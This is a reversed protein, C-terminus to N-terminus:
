LLEELDTNNLHAPNEDDIIQDSIEIKKSQLKLIKEEITGISIFRTVLVKNKRGIRHARAIAQKEVFPNWWPELIFIYDAMTLNLGTGGAKISLMFVKIDEENQFTEVAHQREASSMQGTLMVFRHNNTVLWSRILDLHQLFSSFILLKHGASIVTNMQSIIDGFKGSDGSYSSDILSPHNSIQRLRSLSALVHFRYQSANKDLGLLSNRAASREKEYTKAQDETMESYHVYQTLEPLDDAVQEKTRRLIYPTVLTRLENIAVPDKYKEVPIQYTKKFFSYSGLISPNIFEMQSWLDALSNEMPTGSLTLRNDASLRHLTSFTRSERNRIQQSEDLVVYSFSIRSLVDFDSVATQYTTLIVDFTELTKKLRNRAPGTYVVVQLSPGFKKLEQHWNFVLSAPLVILARLATRSVPVFTDFLDLQKVYSAAANTNEKMRDKTDLLVAITQLTKGLGMDDALCAGLGNDRHHLLWNVGDAQYPRLTTKLKPSPQYSTPVGMRKQSIPGAAPGDELLAFHMKPLRWGNESEGAYRCVASYKAMIEEPILVCRGDDTIFCPDDNRINAFLRSVPYREEGVQVWGGLDFWDNEAIFDPVVTLMELAMTRGHIEPPVLTLFPSLKDALRISHFLLDNEGNGYYIRRNRIEFGLQTLKENIQNEYDENLTFERVFPNNNEHFSIRVKRRVRDTSALVVEPYQYEAFATWRNEFIDYFFRLKTETPTDTRVLEFGEAETEAKGIIDAIFKDFYDRMLRDPIFVYENRVFPKVKATNIETLFWIVGDLIFIGPSDQLIIVDKGYINLKNEDFFLSLAYKVGTQTRSFKIHPKICKDSYSLKIEDAKVKRQLDVCMYAGQMTALQYFAATKKNIISAVTKQSDPSLLLDPLSLAKKRGKNLVKEMEKPSLAWAAELLQKDSDSIQPLYSALNEPLAAAKQYGPRGQSDTDCIVPFPLYQETGPIVLLNYVICYRTKVM